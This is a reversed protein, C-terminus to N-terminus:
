ECRASFSARVTEATEQSSYSIVVRKEYGETAQDQKGRSRSLDKSGHLGDIELPKHPKIIDAFFFLVAVLDFNWKLIVSTCFM